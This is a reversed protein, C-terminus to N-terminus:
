KVVLVGKMGAQVHAPFSCIFAYEGPTTPAKFTIEDTQKAGLLKTHAIVADKMSEPIYDTAQAAIAAKDFAEVDTGAKLLVWNHGMVAKPMSGINTLIVKVEQGAKVEARTLNFKMSDNATFELTVVGNADAAATASGAAASEEKKGCGALLLAGAFLSVAALTHIKM